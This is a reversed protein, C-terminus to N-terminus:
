WDDDWEDRSSALKADILAVKNHNSNTCKDEAIDKGPYRLGDSVPVNKEIVKEFVPCDNKVEEYVVLPLKGFTDDSQGVVSTHANNRQHSHITVTTGDSTTNSTDRSSDPKFINYLIIGIFTPIILGYLGHEPITALSAFFFLVLFVVVVLACGGRM